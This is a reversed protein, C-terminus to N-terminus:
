INKLKIKINGSDIEAYAYGGERLPGPNVIWTNERKEIGKSEHIHGCYCALPNHKKIFNSVSVSGVHLGSKLKDAITGYPPQHLILIAPTRPDLGLFSEDLLSALKNDSYEFPTAGPCPLSGGMGAFAVGKITVHNGHLGFGEENLAKEIDQNDCNGPVAYVNRAKSKIVRLIELADSVTGFHTIDGTVFVADINEFDENIKHFESIDGHIDSITIFKLM